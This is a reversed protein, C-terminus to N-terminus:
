VTQCNEDVKEPRNFKKLGQNKNYCDRYWCVPVISQCRQQFSFSFTIRTKSETVPKKLGLLLITIRAKYSYVSVKDGLGTETKGSTGFSFRGEKM